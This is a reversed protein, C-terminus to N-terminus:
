TLSLATGTCLSSGLYPLLSPLGDIFSGMSFLKCTDSGIQSFEPGVPGRGVIYMTIGARKMDNATNIIAEREGENAYGDTFLVGIQKVFPRPRILPYGSPNRFMQRMMMMAGRVDNGRALKERYLERQSLLTIRANIQEQTKAPQPYSVATAERGYIILGINTNENDLVFHDALMVLFREFPFFEEGPIQFGGPVAIM